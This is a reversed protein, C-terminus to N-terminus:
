ESVTATLHSSLPPPRKIVRRPPANLAPLTGGDIRHKMWDFAAADLLAPLNRAAAPPPPPLQALDAIRRSPHVAAPADKPVAPVAIMPSSISLPMLGAPKAFSVSRSRALLGSGTSTAQPSWNSGGGNTSVLSTSHSRARGTPFHVTIPSQPHIWTVQTNFSRDRPLTSGGKEPDSTIALSWRVKDAPHPPEEAKM